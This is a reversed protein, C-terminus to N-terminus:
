DNNIISDIPEDENDMYDGRVLKKGMKGGGNHSEFDNYDPIYIVTQDETGSTRSQKQSKGVTNEDSTNWVDEYNVTSMKHEQQNMKSGRIQSETTYDSLNGVINSMSKGINDSFIYKNKRVLPEDYSNDPIYTIYNGNNMNLVPKKTKGNIIQNSDENLTISNIPVNFISNSLLINNDKDMCRSRVNINDNYTLISPDLQTEIMSGLNNNPKILDRGYQKNEKIEILNPISGEMTRIDPNYYILHNTRNNKDYSNIRNVTLETEMNSSNITTPGPRLKSNGHVNTIDNETALSQSNEINHINNNIPKANSKSNVGMMEEKVEQDLQCNNHKTYDRLSGNTTYQMTDYADMFASDTSVFPMSSVAYGVNTSPVSHEGDLQLNNGGIGYPLIDKYILPKKNHDYEMMMNRNLARGDQEDTFVKTNYQLATHIDRRCKNLSHNSWPTESTHEDNNKGMRIELNPMRTNIQNQYEDMRPNNDLGRNDQDMFGVFMEPHKPYEYSGRSGNYRLNLVSKSIGTDRKVTDSELFPSDLSWDVIESRIYSNYDNKYDENTLNMDTEELKNLIETYPVSGYPLGWTRVDLHSM